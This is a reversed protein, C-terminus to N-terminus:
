VHFPPSKFSRSQVTALYPKLSGLVTGCHVNISKSYHLIECLVSVGRRFISVVLMHPIKGGNHIIGGKCFFFPNHFWFTKM